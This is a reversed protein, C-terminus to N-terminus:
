KSILKKYSLLCLFANPAAPEDAPTKARAIHLDNRRWQQPLIM